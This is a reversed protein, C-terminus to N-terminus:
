NKLRLQRFISVAFNVLLSASPAPSPFSNQRVFYRKRVEFPEKVDFGLMLGGLVEQGKLGVAFNNKVWSQVVKHLLKSSV